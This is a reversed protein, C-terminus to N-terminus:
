DGRLQKGVGERDTMRSETTVLQGGVAIADKASGSSPQSHSASPAKPKRQAIGTM